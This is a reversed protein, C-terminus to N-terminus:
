NFMDSKIFRALACIVGHKFGETRTIANNTMIGVYGDGQKSGIKKFFIDDAQGLEMGEEVMKIIAPLIMTKVGAGLGENNNKDVVAAWGVSFYSDGHKQMGGELGVGYDADAEKIANKARNKAGLICEDDSMPQDAVGSLVNTGVFEWKENPFVQEFALQVFKIKVPNKSGIVVKM